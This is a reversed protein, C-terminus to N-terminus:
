EKPQKKAEEEELEKVKQEQIKARQKEIYVETVGQRDAGWNEPNLGCVKCVTEDDNPEHTCNIRTALNEELAESWPKLSMTDKHIDYEKVTLSPKVLGNPLMDFHAKIEVGYQRILNKYAELFAAARDRRYQQVKQQADDIDAHSPQRFGDPKAKALKLVNEAALMKKYDALHEKDYAPLKEVDLEAQQM